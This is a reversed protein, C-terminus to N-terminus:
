KNIVAYRIRDIFKGRCLMDDVFYGERVFGTKEFLKHAGINEGDTNLYVKHLSYHSFAYEVLISLAISAIGKRMFKTEGMSIYIEAKQHVRDINLLGVLGVPIGDYEIVCDLRKSNDKSHFWALTKEYNLPVDYHLFRHIEPDNIWRIKNAIDREEFLRLTVKDSQCIFM